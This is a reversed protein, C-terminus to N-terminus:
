PWATASLFLAAGDKERTVQHVIRQGREVSLRSQTNEQSLAVEFTVADKRVEVLTLGVQDGNPLAVWEQKGREMTLERVSREEWRVYALPSLQRKLDDLRPDFRAPQKKSGELVRVRVPVREAALAPTGLLLAAAIGAGAVLRSTWGARRM